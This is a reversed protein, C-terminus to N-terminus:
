QRREGRRSARAVAPQRCGEHHLLRQRRCLPREARFVVRCLGHQGDGGCAFRLEGAALGVGVRGHVDGHRTARGCQEVVHRHAHGHQGHGQLFPDRHHLREFRVQVERRSESCRHRRRQRQDTRCAGVLDHLSLDARRGDGRRGGGASRPHRHRGRRPIQAHRCGDRLTDLQLDLHRSWQGSAMDHRRRGVGGRWGRRRWRCRQRDRQDHGCQRGSHQCWGGTFRHNVHAADRRHFGCGRGFWGALHWAARGHRRVPERHGAAHACRGAHQWPRPQFGSGVAVPDHRCRIGQRRQQAPVAHPLADAHGCRLDIRFRAARREVHHDHQVHPVSRGPPRRQRPGHGM